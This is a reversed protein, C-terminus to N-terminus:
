KLRCETEPQDVGLTDLENFQHLFGPQPSISVLSRDDALLVPQRLQGDWARFSLPAGKYGALSFDASRVFAGITQPDTDGSRTAAEGIARVALWGAYDPATMPRGAERRFRNQLQTSAYEDFVPSWATPVLGHTGAIPRPKDTRYALQDGFNGAADAVVLVDYDDGRTAEAVEANVQFHGTDAQQAAPNFSWQKDAVVSVRFKKAARRVADAYLGDGPERGALLMIRRWNKVALYQMLADALMARSPLLHLVNARCDEGRLGDDATAVDLITADHMEPRDALALLQAAPLDAVVLPGAPGPEIKEDPIMVERLRFSQGLFRGTGNDDSVGLLAGALAHDHGPMAFYLIEVEGKTPATEDAGASLAPVFVLLLNLLAAALAAEPELRPLLQPPM